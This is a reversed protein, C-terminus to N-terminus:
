GIGYGSGSEYLAYRYVTGAPRNGSCPTHDFYVIHEDGVDSGAKSRVCNALFRVNSRENETASEIILDLDSLSDLNEAGSIQAAAASREEETIKGGQVQRHLNGSITALGSSSENRHSM